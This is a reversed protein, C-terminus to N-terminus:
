CWKYWPLFKLAREWTNKKIFKKLYPYISRLREETLKSFYNPSVINKSDSSIKLSSLSKKIDEINTKKDQKLIKNNIIEYSIIADLYWEVFGLSEVKLNFKNSINKLAKIQSGIGAFTEFITIKNM